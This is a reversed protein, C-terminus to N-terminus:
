DGRADLVRVLPWAGRMTNGIVTYGTNSNPDYRARFSVGADCGELMPADNGASIWFGLGYQESKRRTLQAVLAEPVLQSEFLARWFRDIDDLTTFAGGDGSGRRPVHDRNSAGNALQGMVAGAPLADSLFYGSCAMGAPHFVRADVLDYFSLNTALEALLALVVYGSNCYEFRAGAAFKAPHGDLVALYDRTNGLASAPLALSWVEFDADAEEDLYDGIGSTHGLLHEVTVDPAILPLADGLLSRATTDFSLVGDDILAAVTVATFSKSGSAIALQTSLEIGRGCARQYVAAGSTTVRVVGSFGAEEIARDLAESV